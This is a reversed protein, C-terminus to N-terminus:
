LKFNEGKKIRELTMQAGLSLNQEKDNEKSLKEKNITLSLDYKEALNRFIKVNYATLVKSESSEKDSIKKEKKLRQISKTLRNKM